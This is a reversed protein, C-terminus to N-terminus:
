RILLLAGGIILAVGLAAKVTLTEGLFLIALVFAFVVSLKDIPAVRSAPGLKLAHFYFMWSAGTALGSLVLFLLTRAGLAPVARYTGQVIVIGWAFVLIVTTRIATALNSDVERVGVKALVATLGAFFASALAYTAYVPWGKSEM